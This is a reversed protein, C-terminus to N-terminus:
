NLIKANFIKKKKAVLEIVRWTSKSRDVRSLPVFDRTEHTSIRNAQLLSTNIQM